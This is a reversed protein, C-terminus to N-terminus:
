KLQTKLAQIEQTLRDIEAQQEQTLAVVASLYAYIDVHNGRSFSAKPLDELIYGLKRGPKKPDAYHYRALKVDLIQKALDRREAGDVYVIAKKVSRSSRPCMMGVDEAYPESRCTLLVESSRQGEGLSACTFAQTLVCTEDVVDCDSGDEANLDECLSVSPDERQTDEEDLCGIGDPDGNGCPHAYWQESVVSTSCAPLVLFLIIKYM